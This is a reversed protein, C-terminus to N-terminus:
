DEKKWERLLETHVPEDDAGLTEGEAPMRYVHAQIKRDEVCEEIWLVMEGDLMIQLGPYEPDDNVQWSLVGHPLKFKNGEFIVYEAQVEAM